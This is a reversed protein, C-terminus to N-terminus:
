EQPPAGYDAWEEKSPGYVGPVKLGAQRMLVTMQGRHHTQHNVLAGLTQGRKWMEGYMDDEVELDADTWREGIQRGLSEAAERFRVAIEGASAPIPDNGGPGDVNLGTRNGMEPLTQVIHWAIRGLTRGGPYVVQELSEDTLTEFMKLTADTEYAWAGRFDQIKRYM